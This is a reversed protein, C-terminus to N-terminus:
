QTRNEWRKRLLWVVFAFGVFFVFYNSRSFKGFSAQSSVSIEYRVSGYVVRVGLNPGLADTIESRKQVLMGGPRMEWEVEEERSSTKESSESARRSFNLRRKIM